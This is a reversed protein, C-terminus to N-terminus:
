VAQRRVGYIVREPRVEWGQEAVMSKGSEDQDYADLLNLLILMLIMIEESIEDQNTQM